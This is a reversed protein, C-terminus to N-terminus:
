AEAEEDDGGRTDRFICFQAVLIESEHSFELLQEKLPRNVDYEMEIVLRNTVMQDDVVFVKDDPELAELRATFKPNFARVASQPFPCAFFRQSMVATMPEGRPKMFRVALSKISKALLPKEAEATGPMRGNIWARYFGFLNVSISDVSTSSELMKRAGDLDTNIDHEKPSLPKALLGRDRLPVNDKHVIKEAKKGM